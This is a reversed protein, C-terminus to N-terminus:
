APVDSAQDQNRFVHEKPQKVHKPEYAATGRASESVPGRSFAEIMEADEDSDEGIHSTSRELILADICSCLCVYRQEHEPDWRRGEDARWM